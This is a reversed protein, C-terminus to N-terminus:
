WRDLAMLAGTLKLQVRINVALSGLRKQPLSARRIDWHPNFAHGDKVTPQGMRAWCAMATLPSAANYSEPLGYRWDCSERVKLFMYCAITSAPDPSTGILRRALVEAGFM